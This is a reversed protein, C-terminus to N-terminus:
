RINLFLADTAFVIAQTTYIRIGMFGDYSGLGGAYNWGLKAHYKGIAGLDRFLPPGYDVNDRTLFIAVTGVGANFGQSIGMEVSQCSFRENNPHKFGFDILRTIPNGFDTDIAGFMGINVGSGTYYKGNFETIFGGLWPRSVGEVVTDLRFWKGKLFGFSDRALTFTAVDYGQIKMRGPVCDGLEAITYTSLIDDIFSNSIKIAKGPGIAYFGFDQDKERGLFLFTDVYEQLGGIFGHRITAGQIVRFPVPSAGTDRFLQFSDTGGIYLTNGFNFCSNNLDPLEEADFFSLPQITGAAGVDSFKAPTGDAPIYVFRGNIHTVDVWPEFNSNASTDTLVDLKSLTYSSGGKVIIVADNFGIDTEINASGAITGIVSNAGTTVDTIKLLETGFVMYLFGNWKFTGRCSNAKTSLGTIGDRPLIQGEANNFCNRLATRTQPLDKAGQLGTPLDIRAM